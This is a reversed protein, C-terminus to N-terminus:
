QANLDVLSEISALAREMFAPDTILVEVAGSPCREACRGCGRCSGSDITARGDRVSIANVFCWGEEECRGCGTCRDTVQVDVGPMRTVGSAIGDSLDPLMKWLCCCPCCNCISLLDEKPGTNLWVSDIKNRGVLHVLGKERARRMHDIAEEVTAQRGMDPSIRTTGRGLFICGMEHPYDHCDNADRCMCSNMIFIYRSKRLIHDIFQSPLVVNEPRVEVGMEIVRERSTQVATDRPLYFMHDEDFLAKEVGTGIIPLRTLRAMTFRRGFAARILRTTMATRLGM